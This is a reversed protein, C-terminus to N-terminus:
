EVILGATRFGDRTGPLDLVGVQEFLNITKAASHRIGKLVSEPNYSEAVIERARAESFGSATLAAYAPRTAPQLSRVVLHPLYEAVLKRTPADLQGWLHRFFNAFFAHHRGEDIAHDRVIARVVDVVSEDKPIDSLISTILTEFVVVQLLQVLRRHQPMDEGVADLGTIFPGFDYPLGLIGSRAELQHQVDLSYLSHYGEDVVIRYADMRSQPTLALGTSGDAIQQTARCVVAVEFHMTFNLWQYLHQATLYRRLEYDDPGVLPHNLHPVLHEPFFAKHIDDDVDILRRPDMRVGAREYWHEFAKVEPM